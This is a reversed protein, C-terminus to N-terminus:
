GGTLARVDSTVQAFGRTRVMDVLWAPLRGGGDMAIQHVVEVGGDSHPAVWWYGDTRPVRVSGERLALPEEVAATWTVRTGGNAERASMWLLVERDAIPWIHQRQYVLSREGDRRRVTSEVIPPVFEPYRSFDTLLAKAKDLSVEPWRCTARLATKDPHGEPRMAIVCGDVSRVVEFGDPEAALAWMVFLQM